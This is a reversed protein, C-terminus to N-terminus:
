ISNTLDLFSVIVSSASNRLVHLFNESEGLLWIINLGFLERTLYPLLKEYGGAIELDGVLDVLNNYAIRAADMIESKVAASKGDAYRDIFGCLVEFTTKFSGVLAGVLERDGARELKVRVPKTTLKESQPAGSTGVFEVVAWGEAAAVLYGSGGSNKTATARELAESKARFIESKLVFFETGQIEVAGAGGPNKFDVFHFILNGCLFLVALVVPVFVFLFVGRGRRVRRYSYGGYGGDM